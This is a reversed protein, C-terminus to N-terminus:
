RLQLALAKAIRAQREETLAKAAPDEEAPPEAAFLIENLTDLATKLREINRKSLVRGEKADTILALKAAASEPLALLHPYVRSLVEETVAYILLWANTDASKVSLDRGALEARATRYLTLLTTGPDSKLNQTAQNAGFTVDSTDWLRVERINRIMKSATVPEDSKAPMESYDAKIVDFGFSLEKIAGAKIGALVENGRQTDLYTRRVLLAGTATPYDNLLELPLDARGVERLENIKAIPTDMMNHMWLHQVRKAGEQITKTFSGPHVIDDVSDVVGFVSAFGTVQRDDVNTVFGDFAKTEM